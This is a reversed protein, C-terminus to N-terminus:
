DIHGKYCFDSSRLIGLDACCEMVKLPEDNIVHNTNVNNYGYHLCACKDISLPKSNQVSWDGVAQLDRKMANRDNATSAAGVAKDDDAFLYM